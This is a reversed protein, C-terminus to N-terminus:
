NFDVRLYFNTLQSLYNKIKIKQRVRRIYEDKLKERTKLILM